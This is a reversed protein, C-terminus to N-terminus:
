RPELECPEVNVALEQRGRPIIRSQHDVAVRFECALSSRSEAKEEIKEFAIGGDAQQPGASSGSSLPARGGKRDSAANWALNAGYGQLTIQWQNDVTVVTDYSVESLGDMWVVNKIRTFSVTETGEIRLTEGREFDGTTDVRVRQGWPAPAEGDRGVGGWLGDATTALCGRTGPM